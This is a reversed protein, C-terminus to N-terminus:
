LKPQWEVAGLKQMAEIFIHVVGSESPIHIGLLSPFTSCNYENPAFGGLDHHPFNYWFEDKTEYLDRTRRLIQEFEEISVEYVLEYVNTHSGQEALEKARLFISTDDQLCGHQRVHDRLNRLIAEEGGADIVAQHTPHFGYIIDEGEFMIGVHGARILAPEHHFELSRFGTGRFALLRIYKM